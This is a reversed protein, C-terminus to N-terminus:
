ALQKKRLIRLASVGFPLLLFAGAIVTSPEPVAGVPVMDVSMQKMDALLPTTSPTTPVSLIIRTILEGDATSFQYPNQGNWNIALNQSTNNGYQDTGLFTVTVDTKSVNLLDLSLDGATFGYGAQPTITLSSFGTLSSPNHNQSDAYSQIFAVGHQAHMTTTSGDPGIMDSFYVNLGSNIQGTIIAADTDAALNVNNYQNNGTDFTITASASLAAGIVLLAAIIKITKMKLSRQKNQEQKLDPATKVERSKKLYM